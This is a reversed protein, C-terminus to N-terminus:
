PTQMRTKGNKRLWQAAQFTSQGYTRMAETLDPLTKSYDTVDGSRYHYLSNVGNDRSVYMFSSNLVAFKDDAYSCVFPRKERFLDIGFTNNVYPLKLMGMITPFIDAQCGLQNFKQPAGLLSPAYFILPSHLYSLPMDYRKDLSAGHDAVFVFITNDFWEEQSAMKMFKQVSWDVYEVIALTSEKHRPKFYKPIVFPSHDSGTMIAAFFPKGKQHLGTLDGTAHEYLYDDPVGLASLIKEAPYDNKSVIREFGNELLFPAVNDFEKDHTTFYITSYGHQQLTNAIGSQPVLTMLPHQRKIVPQSFLTTYIGAFTHIGSTFVSDFAFGRTALSDMFPTLNELNGYRGMKNASMSEMIVLVVNPRNQATDALLIQRAIPSNFDQAAPIHLYEQINRIAEGDGMFHVEQNRDDFSNVYSQGFTYVPNLGLMNTFGYDSFYATGADLRSQFSFRGWIGLGLLLAFFFFSRLITLFSLDDKKFLIAYLRKNARMFLWSIIFFPVLVWYFRWEQFVMGSLMDSGGSNASILATMSIRSYFHHFFPIDAACVFFSFIYGASILWYVMRKLLRNDWGTMADVTLLLFPLTLIYGSVVTDFRLGMLFAKIGLWAGKETPFYHLQHFEQLLLILRFTTFCLLGALYIRLVYTLQKPLIGPLPQEKGLDIAIDRM